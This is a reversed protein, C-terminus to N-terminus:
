DEFTVMLFGAVVDEATVGDDDSVLLVDDSLLGDALAFSESSVSFPVVSVGSNEALWVPYVAVTSNEVSSIVTEALAASALAFTFPVPFYGSSTPFLLILIM